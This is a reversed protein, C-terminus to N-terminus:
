RDKTAKTLKDEFKKDHAEYTYGTGSRNLQTESQELKESLDEVQGTMYDANQLLMCSVACILEFKVDRCYFVGCSKLVASGLDTTRELELAKLRIKLQKECRSAQLACNFTV